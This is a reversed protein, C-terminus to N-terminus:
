DNVFDVGVTESIVAPVVESISENNKYTLLVKRYYDELQRAV